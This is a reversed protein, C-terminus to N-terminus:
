HSLQSLCQTRLIGELMRNFSLKKDKQPIM